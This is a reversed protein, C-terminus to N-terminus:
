MLFLYLTLVLQELKHKDRISVVRIHGRRLQAIFDNIFIKDRNGCLGIGVVVQATIHSVITLLM